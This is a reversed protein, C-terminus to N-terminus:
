VKARLDELEREISDSYDDLTQYKAERKADEAETVELYEQRMQKEIGMEEDEQEARLREEKQHIRLLRKEDALKNLNRIAGPQMMIHIYAHSHTYAQIHQESRLSEEKQHIRLLRKEDALKNLNRIAGPQMMIHIYAHTHTHTHIHTHTYAHIHQESTLREEKQQIRLLRKEDALKNFNRIAGPQMMIHIYAHSHTYAHVHQESTLREEKQQIRLLRKEDALKNLNRIAGPQMMIHIYAHTHTRTYTHTHTHTNNLDLGRKVSSIESYSNKMPSNATKALLVRKNDHEPIYPSTGYTSTDNISICLIADNMCSVCAPMCAELPQTDAPRSCSLLGMSLFIHHHAMHVQTITMRLITDNMCSVCAPKSLSYIKENRVHHEPIYPSTCIVNTDNMIRMCEELPPSRIQEKHTLTESVNLDPDREVHRNRYLSAKRIRRHHESHQKWSRAPPKKSQKGGRLRLVAAPLFTDIDEQGSLTPTGSWAKAHTSGVTQFDPAGQSQRRLSDRCTGLLKNNHALLDTHYGGGASILLLFVFVKRSDLALRM